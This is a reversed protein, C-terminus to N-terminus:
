SDFVVLLCFNAFNSIVLTFSTLLQCEHADIATLSNLYKYFRVYFVRSINRKLTKQAVWAQIGPHPPCQRCATAPTAVATAAVSTAAPRICRGNILPNATGGWWKGATTMKTLSVPTRNDVNGMPQPGGRCARIIRGSTPPLSLPTPYLILILPSLYPVPISWM